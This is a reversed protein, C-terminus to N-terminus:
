KSRMKWWLARVAGNVTALVVGFVFGVACNVLIGPVLGVRVAHEDSHANDGLIFFWCILHAPGLVTTAIEKGPLRLFYVPVAVITLTGAVIIGLVGGFWIPHRRRFSDIRTYGRSDSASEIPEYPNRSM